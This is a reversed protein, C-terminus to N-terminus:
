GHTVEMREPWEIAMEEGDALALWRQGHEALLERVSALQGASCELPPVHSSEWGARAMTLLEEDDSAGSWSEAEFCEVLREAQLLEVLWAEPVGARKASAHGAAKAQEGLGEPDAGAAVLGWFGRGLGLASEVCFHFLDHSVTGKAPIAFSAVSGDAREVRVQETRGTRSMAIMM